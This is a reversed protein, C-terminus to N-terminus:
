MTNFLKSVNSMLLDLIEWFFFSSLCSVKFLLFNMPCVVILVLSPLYYTPIVFLSFNEYYHILAAQNMIFIYTFSSFYTLLYDYNSFKMCNQMPTSLFWLAALRVKIINYFFNPSGLISKPWPSFSTPNFRLDM